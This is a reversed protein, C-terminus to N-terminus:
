PHDTKSAIPTIKLDDFEVGSHGTAILGVRNAPDALRNRRDTDEFVRVGGLMARFTDGTHVIKLTHWGTPDLELDKEVELGVRNGGSVRHVAIESRSMDLILSYYHSEDLYRWILGAARAGDVFRIRVTVAVDPGTKVDPIALSFGTLRDRAHFLVIDADRKQVTWRGPEKQRMSGFTFGAPTTGIPAENFTYTIPAQNGFALGLPLCLALLLLAPDKMFM